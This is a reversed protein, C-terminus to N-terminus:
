RTPLVRARPGGLPSLLFYTDGLGPQLIADFPVQPFRGRTGSRQVWTEGDEAIFTTVGFDNRRMEIIRVPREEVAASSEAEASLVEQDTEVASVAPEGRGSGPALAADLCALRQRDGQIDGCARLTALADADSQALAVSVFFVLSLTGACVAQVRHVATKSETNM